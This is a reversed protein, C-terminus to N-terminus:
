IPVARRMIIASVDGTRRAYYSPRRGTQEFGLKAYLARAGANDEASELRMVSAGRAAVAAAAAIVLAAGVGRRRAEPSVAVTLLEAEGAAAWAIVLGVPAAEHAILAFAAPNDLLTAIEDASWPRDFGRAHLEALLAAAEAGVTEIV